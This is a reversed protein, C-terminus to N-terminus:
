VRKSSGHLPSYLTTQRAQEFEFNDSNLRWQTVLNYRGTTYGDYAAQATQFDSEFKAGYALLTDRTREHRQQSLRVGALLIAPTGWEM